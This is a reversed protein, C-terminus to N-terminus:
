KLRAYRPSGPELGLATKVKGDHGYLDERRVLRGSEDVSLTFYTLHVPVKEQLRITREGKGIMKRLREENYGQPGILFEALRFPQDVRVCGHSFARRENAFLSRSPTDHLYVSHQNPFMFKIFGLANREGPPQRVSISNGRRIVEYGRRAAYSPDAALGPLIENKLISPPIYWSPNVILYEMEHSFIPTPTEPKGVIVRTQHIVEGGDFVRLMFEPLNVLIHKEGLDRPVWRWREMNAIVDATGIPRPAPAAKKRGAAAPAPDPEAAIAATSARMERLKARLARYGEHPPNYAALASGADGAASLTGLVEGAAPIELDPTILRSLRSPQIRGGRADRAYAVAGASLSVEAEALAALGASEGIVAVPYDGSDLADEEAHDLRAAIHRGEPTVRVGDTWLPQYDRAAYFASIAEIEAKTLRATKKWFGDDGLVQQLVPRLDAATLVEAPRLGEAVTPVAPLDPPALDAGSPVPPTPPAVPEVAVTVPPLDPAPLDTPSPRTDAAHTVPSAEPHPAATDPALAAPGTAQVPAAAPGTDQAAVLTANAVLLLPALCLWPRARMPSSGNEFRATM